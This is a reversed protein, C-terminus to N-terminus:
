EPPSYLVCVNGLHLQNRVTVSPSSPMVSIPHKQIGNIPHGVITEMTKEPSPNPIQTGPMMPIITIYESNKPLITRQVLSGTSGPRNRSVPKLKRPRM